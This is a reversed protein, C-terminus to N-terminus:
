LVIVFKEILSTHLQNIHYTPLLHKLSTGCHFCKIITPLDKFTKLRSDFISKDIYISGTRNGRM